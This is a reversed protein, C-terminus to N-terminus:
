AAVRNDVSLIEERPSNEANDCPCLTVCGHARDGCMMKRYYFYFVTRARSDADCVLICLLM